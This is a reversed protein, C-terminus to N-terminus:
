KGWLCDRRMEDCTNPASGRAGEDNAIANFKTAGLGQLTSIYGIGYPPDTCIADFQLSGMIERCDGLILRQGGIREEKVIM